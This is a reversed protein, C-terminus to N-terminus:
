VKVRGAPLESGAPIPKSEEVPKIEPIGLLGTVWPNRILTLSEPAGVCKTLDLVKVSEM